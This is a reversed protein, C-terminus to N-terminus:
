LNVIKFGCTPTTKNQCLASWPVLGSYGGKTEQKPLTQFQNSQIETKVMNEKVCALSPHFSASVFAPM